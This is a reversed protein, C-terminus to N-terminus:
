PGERVAGLCRACGLGSGGRLPLEACRVSRRHLLYRIQLSPQSSNYTEVLNVSHLHFELTGSQEDSPQMNLYFDQWTTDITIPRKITAWSPGEADNQPFKVKEGHPAWVDFDGGVARYSIRIEQEVSLDSRALGPSVYFKGILISSAILDGATFDDKKWIPLKFADATYQSNRILPGGGEKGHDHGAITQAVVGPAGADLACEYLAAAARFGKTIWRSVIPVHPFIDSTDLKGFNPTVTM